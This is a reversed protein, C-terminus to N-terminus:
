GDAPHLLTDGNFTYVPAYPSGHVLPEFVVIVRDYHTEAIWIGDIAKLRPFEGRPACKKSKAFGIM